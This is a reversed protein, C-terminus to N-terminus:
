LVTQFYSQMESSLHANPPIKTKIYRLLAHISQISLRRLDIVNNCKSVIGPQHSEIIRTIQESDEPNCFKSAELCLRLLNDSPLQDQMPLAPNIGSEFVIHKEHMTPSDDVLQKIKTRLNYVKRCWSDRSIRYFLEKRTLTVIFEIASKGHPDKISANANKCLIQLENLFEKQSSYQNRNIKEYLSRIGNPFNDTKGNLINTIPHQMLKRMTEQLIKKERENM